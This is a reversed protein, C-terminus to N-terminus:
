FVVKIYQTCLTEMNQIFFDTNECEDDGGIIFIVLSHFHEIGYELARQLNEAANVLNQGNQIFIRQDISVFDKIIQSTGDDSCNDYILLKWDKLSQNILSSIM